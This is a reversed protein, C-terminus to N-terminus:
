KVKNKSEWELFDQMERERRGSNILAELELRENLIEAKIVYCEDKFELDVINDCFNVNEGFLREYCRYKWNGEEIKNCLNSDNLNNAMTFYCWDKNVVKECVTTDDTFKFFKSECFNRLGSNTINRCFIVDSLKDALGMYCNSREGENDIKDCLRSDNLKLAFFSYCYSKNNYTYDFEDCASPGELGEPNFYIPQPPKIQPCHKDSEQLRDYSLSNLCEYRAFQEYWM